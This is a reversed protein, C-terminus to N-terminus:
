PYSMACYGNGVNVWNQQILYDKFGLNINALAGNATQYTAGVRRYCKDSNEKGLRDYWGNLNPNTLTGSLDHAIWNVIADAAYDGNPGTLQLACMSPCRRPNGIVAFRINIGAVTTSDHFECSDTCHGDVSVDDSTLVFYIGQPDLPLQESLINSSVISGGDADTLNSGHSYFDYINSGWLLANSLPTGASDHYTTNINFYPSGGLSVAFDTVIQEANPQNSWNGYMIFYVRNTGLMVPGAHYRIRSEKRPKSNQGVIPSALATGLALVMFAATIIRRKM